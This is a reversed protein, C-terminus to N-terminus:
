RPAGPKVSVVQVAGVRAVRGSDGAAVIVDIGSTGLARALDVADGSCGEAGCAFTSHALVVTLDAKERKVAGIAEALGPVPPRFQLGTLGAARLQPAASPPVYGILGIRLNGASVVRYAGAWDPRRGTASDVLNAALWSFRSQAIRQRLTDLSWTADRPGVATAALGLRNLVEVAPRGTAVDAAFGGQLM